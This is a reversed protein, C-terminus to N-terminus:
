HDLLLMDGQCNKRQGNQQAQGTHSPANTIANKRKKIHYAKSGKTIERPHHCQTKSANNAKHATPHKGSVGRMDDGKQFCM